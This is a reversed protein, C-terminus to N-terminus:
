HDDYHGMCFLFEVCGGDVKYILRDGHTIRRSWFKGGGALRKPKGIGITPDEAAEKMMRVIRDFTRVNVRKWERIQEEFKPSRKVMLKAM